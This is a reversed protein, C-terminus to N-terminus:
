VIVQKQVPISFRRDKTTDNFYYTKGTKEDTCMRWMSQRKKKALPNDNWKNLEVTVSPSPCSSTYVLKFLNLVKRRQSKNSINQTVSNWQRQADKFAMPEKSVRVAVEIARELVDGKLSAELAKVLRAIQKKKTREAKWNQAALANAQISSTHKVMCRKKCVM